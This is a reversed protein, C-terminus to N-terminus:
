AAATVIRGYMNNLGHAFAWRTFLLFVTQYNKSATYPDVFLNIRNLREGILFGKLNGFVAMGTAAASTSIAQTLQKISYGYLKGPVGAFSSDIFIPRSQSDNLAHIYNWQITRHMYFNGNQALYRDPIKGILKQIDSVLLESFNTSGSSFVQSVGTSLFLGSVPDGTGLFVASDIKQGVAEIFQPLLLGVIGGSLFNDEILENSVKSYADMRKTTLTVEGLTAESETAASEEATFAVSVNTGEKPITMSSSAMPITQCDQLAVSSDRTYYLLETRVEPKVLYGGESATGEQMAAKAIPGKNAKYGYDLLDIFWKVMKETRAPEDKARQTILKQIGLANQSPFAGAKINEIEARLKVGKYEAPTGVEFTKAEVGQINQALPSQAKAQARADKEEVVMFELEKEAAGLEKILKDRDDLLQKQIEVDTEKQILKEKDQIREKKMAILSQLMEVANM